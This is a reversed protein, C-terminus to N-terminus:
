ASFVIALAVLNMLVHLMIPPMMSSTCKALYGFMVGIVLLYLFRALDAHFVAYLFAQTIVALWSPMKKSLSALLVGRFFIEEIVPVAVGLWLMVVGVCFAGYQDAIQKLSWVEIKGQDFWDVYQNAHVGFHDLMWTWAGMSAPKVILHLFGYCLAVVLLMNFANVLREKPPYEFSRRANWLYFATVALGVESFVGAVYFHWSVSGWREIVLPDPYIQWGLGHFMFAISACIALLQMFLWMVAVRKIDGDIFKSSKRCPLIAIIGFTMGFFLLGVLSPRLAVFILTWISLSHMGNGAICALTSWPERLGYHWM